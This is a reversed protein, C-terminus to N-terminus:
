FFVITMLLLTTDIYICLFSSVQTDSLRLYAISLANLVFYPSLNLFRRRMNNVKFLSLLAGVRWFFQDDLDIFCYNQIRNQITTSLGSDPDHLM